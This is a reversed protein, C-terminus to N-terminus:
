CQSVWVRPVLISVQFTDWLLPSFLGWGSLSARSFASSVLVAWLLAKPCLLFCREEGQLGQGPIAVEQPDSPLCSVRM